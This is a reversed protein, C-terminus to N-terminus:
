KTLVWRAGLRMTLGHQEGVVRGRSDYAVLDVCTAPLVLGRQEGTGVRSGAIPSYSLDMDGCPKKHIEAISRGLRNSVELVLTEAPPPKACGILGVPGLSGFAVVLGVVVHKLRNM